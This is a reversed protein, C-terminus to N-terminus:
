KDSKGSMMDKTINYIFLANGILYRRWMRKPEKVLRYAWELGLNQWSQPAREITGAYFDFVAGITGMHGKVNLKNYHQHTWKEQKPATMGVWLLDPEVENVKDVMMQSEEPTFEPKYPPSFTHVEINPFDVRAREVIKDLTGQASGLFFCKGGTKNLKTMEHMFLDYGAIRICPKKNMMTYAKAISIGDPILQHSDLAEKFFADTKATNYSHANVTNILMKEQPLSALEEMSTILENKRSGINLM